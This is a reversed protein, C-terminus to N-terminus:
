SCNDAKMEEEDLDLTVWKELGPFAWLFFLTALVIPGYVVIEAIEKLTRM